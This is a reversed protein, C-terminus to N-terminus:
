LLRSMDWSVNCQYDKGRVLIEGFYERLLGIVVLFYDSDIVWAQLRPDWSRAEPPLTEKLTKVFAEKYPTELDFEGSGRDTIIADSQYPYM